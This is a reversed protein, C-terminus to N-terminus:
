PDGGQEHGGPLPDEGAGPEAPRAQPSCRGLRRSSCGCSAIGASAVDSFLREYKPLLVEKACHQLFYSRGSIGLTARQGADMEHLKRVAEALGKPDEAKCTVGARAEDVLRAADGEVAMIIPRGCALYANTKAPITIRFLPDRKLHVLLADSAAFLKPMLELPQRGLFIVNRLRLAQTMDKLPKEQVGDGAIVFQVDHVDSLERAADLVTELCQALGLNGAFVVNFKGAMGFREAVAPDSPLPRFLTEDIWNPILHVKSRAVGKEVLTDAMGPASVIIGSAQRYIRDALSDVIRLVARSRVMGTAELTEPWLDQIEFVFPIRRLRKIWLAPIGTVLPPDYVWAVDAPGCLASGFCSASAAFSFYSLARRLGSKSHDPFLPLRLVRAGEIEEWQWPRQRYGKYVKGQPYNPFATITTVRHGRQALYSAIEHRFFPEPPYFQSILLVRM